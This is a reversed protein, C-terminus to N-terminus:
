LKLLEHLSDFFEDVHTKSIFISDSNDKLYEPKFVVGLFIDFDLYGYEDEIGNTLWTISVDINKLMDGNIYKEWNNPEEPNGYIDYWWKYLLLYYPNTHYKRPLCEYCGIDKYKEYSMLEHKLVQSEYDIDKEEHFDRINSEPHVKHFHKVLDKKSEFGCDDILCDDHLCCLHHKPVFQLETDELKTHKIQIDKYFDDNLEELMHELEYMYIPFGHPLFKLHKIIEIKKSYKDAISGLRNYLELILDLNNNLYYLSDVKFIFKYIEKDLKILKQIYGVIINAIDIDVNKISLIRVLTVYKHAEILSIM